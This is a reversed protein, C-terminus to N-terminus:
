TPITIRFRAGELHSEEINLNGGYSSVIEDCVALGIGQGPSQSDARVGRQIIKQRLQEEVGPGDDEVILEFDGQENFHATVQVQSICLRFANEMLNGCLEMLDGKNGPFLLNTPINDKFKVQKDRYIKFLMQALQEVLPAIATHEQKLGQRGLMARKLQYKVLQDMQSIQEMIKENASQKTLSTDDTIAHVAALRTKLSHALDNMANQYRQQQASSQQLLQNLAQTVGELEVPYGESLSKTKGQNISQLENQMRVLPRMGWYAASVLLILALALVMALRIYTRKSFKSYEQELKAADKMVLLNYHVGAIEVALLYVFYGRDDAMTLYYPPSDNRIENFRECTDFLGRDVALSSTWVQKFKEDCSAIVYREQKNNEELWASTDPILDHERLEAAVQPIEAILQATEENYSNQAHLINVMWALGFGVLTIISLSTLFMRTLLRKKFKLRLQM